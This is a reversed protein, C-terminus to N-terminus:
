FLINKFKEFLRASQQLLLFVYKRLILVNEKYLFM